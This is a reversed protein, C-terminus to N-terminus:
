TWTVDLRVEDKSTQGRALDHKIVVGKLSMEEFVANLWGSGAAHIFPYGPVLRIILHKPSVQEARSGGFNHYKAWFDSWKKVLMEVTLVKLLLKLFTSTAGQGIFKGCRRVAAEGEDVDQYSDFVGQMLETAYHLPYWEAHRISPLAAKVDPSLQAMIRERQAETYFREIFQAAGAVYTGKM